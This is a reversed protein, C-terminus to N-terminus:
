AGAGGPWSMGNPWNVHHEGGSLRSGTRHRAAPSALHLLWRLKRAANPAGKRAPRALCGPPPRQRDGGFCLETALARDPPSLRCRACNGSLALDAYAGAALGSAGAWAVAARELYPRSRAALLALFSRSGACRDPKPTTMAAGLADCPGLARGGWGRPHKDAIAARAPIDLRKGERSLSMSSNARRQRGPALPGTLPLALRRL